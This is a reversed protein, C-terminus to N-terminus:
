FALLQDFDIFENIRNRLQLISFFSLGTSTMSRAAFFSYCNLM